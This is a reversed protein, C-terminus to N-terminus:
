HDLDLVHKRLSINLYNMTKLSQLYLQIKLKVIMTNMALIHFFLINKINKKYGTVKIFESVPKLLKNTPEKPNKGLLRM